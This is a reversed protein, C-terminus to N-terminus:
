PVAVAPHGAIADVAVLAQAVDEETSAWGLSFRVAGTELTGALRHAEPSCHLGARAMVGFDADLRHAMRAPEVRASVFTVIAVGDEAAPSVVRVGDISGLGERLRRKLATERAHIRGIGEELVHMAAAELGALGPANLTGAELRDPMSSPMDRVSSDGGAGGTLLPEVDLSERVWLGGTGQPGLLGKHGTLAVLDAGERAHSVDLHGASQAADVLVLAGAAHARRALEPVPARTGLVNSAANVVLLKAGEVVREVEDLDFAGDPTGSLRRVEVGRERELYHVPRLVANHAYPSVVVADGRGLVGWLATNLAHTANHMFALRGPDGPLGLLRCVIRRCRLAMRGAEVGLEHAGRGPTAGCSSLYASMADVVSPPRVASTAAYDLYHM